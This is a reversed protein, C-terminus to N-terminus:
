RRGNREVVARVAPTYENLNVEECLRDSVYDAFSQFRGNQLDRYMRLGAKNAELDAHSIVGSLSRGFGGYGLLSGSFQRRFYPEEAAYAERPEKGELWEGYREAMRDGRKDIVSIRYYEWGQQFMHGLKDTGICVGNVKVCPEIYGFLGTLAVLSGRYKLQGLDPRVAAPHQNAWCEVPPRVVSRGGELAAIQEVSKGEALHRKIRETLEDVLDAQGRCFHCAECDVELGLARLGGPLLVALWAVAWPRWGQGGFQRGGVM